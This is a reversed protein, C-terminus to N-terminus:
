GFNFWNQQPIKSQKVVESLKRSNEPNKQLLSPWNDCVFRLSLSILPPVRDIQTTKSAPMFSHTYTSSPLAKFIFAFFCLDKCINTAFRRAVCLCSISARVREGCHAGCENKCRLVMGNKGLLFWRMPLGIWNIAHPRLTHVEVCGGVSRSGTALSM